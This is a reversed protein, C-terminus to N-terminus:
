AGEYENDRLASESKIRGVAFLVKSVLTEPKLNNARRRTPKLWRLSYLNLVYNELYMSGIAGKNGQLLLCM